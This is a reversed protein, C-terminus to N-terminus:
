LGGGARLSGAAGPDAAPYGGSLPREKIFLLYAIRERDYLKKVPNKVLGRKVYNSIMSGTVAIDLPKLCETLCYATQELYLGVDPIEEYRPLRFNKIPAKIADTITQEM